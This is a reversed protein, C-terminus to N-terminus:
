APGNRITSSTSHKPASSCRSTRGPSSSKTYRCTSTSAHPNNLSNRGSNGFTLGQTQTYAACNFLPVGKTAKALAPLEPQPDGIIDAYSGIGTTGDAVGASDGYVGNVVSFPTGTAATIIGAWQWGGLFTQSLGKGHFSTM